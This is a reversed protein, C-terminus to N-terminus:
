QQKLQDALQFCRRIALEAVMASREAGKNSARLYGKYMRLKERLKLNDAEAVKLAGELEEVRCELEEVYLPKEPMDEPCTPPSMSMAAPSGLKM